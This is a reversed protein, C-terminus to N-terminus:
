KKNVGEVKCGVDNVNNGTKPVTNTRSKESDPFITPFTNDV